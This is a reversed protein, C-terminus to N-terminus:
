RRSERRAAAAATTTAPTGSAVVSQPMDPSESSYPAFQDPTLM